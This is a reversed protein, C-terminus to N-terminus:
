KNSGGSRNWQSPSPGVRTAVPRGVETRTHMAGYKQLGQRTLWPWIGTYGSGTGIQRVLILVSTHENVKM